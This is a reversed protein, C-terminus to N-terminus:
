LLLRSMLVYQILRRGKAIENGVRRGTYGSNGDYISWQVCTKTEPHVELFVWVLLYKLTLSLKGLKHLPILQTVSVCRRKGM